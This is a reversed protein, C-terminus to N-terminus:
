IGDDLKDIDGALLDLWAKEIRSALEQNQEHRELDDSPERLMRMVQQIDSILTRDFSSWGEFSESPIPGNAELNLDQLAELIDQVQLDVPHRQWLAISLSPLHSEEDLKVGSHHRLKATAM